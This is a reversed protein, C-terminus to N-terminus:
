GKKSVIALWPQQEIPLGKPRYYHSLLEFGADQLYRSAVDLEMFHGYREGSWGEDRGRPNSSFLIGGVRLSAHLEALVRPLEQSPIHFLSANAFVADFALPPLDLSLFDQCLIECGSHQRAMDCFQASGDLGVPRHGLSKFYGVDRGPGCGFDLVDLREDPEFQSLLARYNQSVDHDKTGEWFSQARTDYHGVTTKEIHELQETSLQNPM